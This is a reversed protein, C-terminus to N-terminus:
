TQRRVSIERFSEILIRLDDFRYIELSPDNDRERVTLSGRMGSVAPIVFYDLVTRAPAKLRGIVVVDAALVQGLLLRWIINLAPREWGKIVTVKVTVNGNLRLM